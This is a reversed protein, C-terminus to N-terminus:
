PDDPRPMRYGVRLETLIYTPRKADDGLKRRLRKVYARVIKADSNRGSWVQRLLADYTLVRGAGLSLTRLLDYETATLAVPRGGVSVRRRDYDIALDGLIFPEPRTRRRLAARVRAVLETPSFPKVIYDEAGAELARAITEDRGYGSIFVVPVDSLGPVQEMLEIGDTGPLMLDLLVLAPKETELVYSLEDPNGTVVQAYGAEGLADRVFRLTEPDDDVVLIRTREGDDSRAAARRREAGAAAGGTDDAAPLTFTFRAGQGPGGSEARIRGGHAEVLGKCIALGLGGGAWRKGDRAYKRFLKALREPTLGHGEDSIAIAVHVGERTAEIRIPSSEPSYRAANALLNNLVQVIRERDALVQPLEPPLDIVVRHRGGGSLFTTRARDLLDAVESPEPAVSLTGTEIRGADLLDGILSDMRDAQEEIIRFFQEIEAPAFNRSRGLVTAASGKISALPARLEHSVMGLFEARMRELDELPALDQMTVVMSVLSGDEVRIPTANILVKVSRGDPVSLEIEEARVTEASSLAAAMPLETLAVERGDGRRCNITRLLDEAARVPKLLSEVIRRAERNLSVPNGSAADFVVVGVPSTEILAELDARARREDHYARAHAIAAAAQAAFLVLVAEDEDTFTEGGEKGALFFSGVYTGRHRMPTGQFTKPTSPLFDASFGLSRIYASFDAIRLPGPVDRFFAFLKPGDPWEVMNRHEEETFGSTVFDRPAGTEDITSIVSHRAGTLARASEVVENLVTELDLSAGIRLMAAALGSHRAEHGQEAVERDNPNSM